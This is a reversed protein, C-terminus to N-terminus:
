SIDPVACPTNSTVRGTVTGTGLLRKGIAKDFAQKFSEEAAQQFVPIETGSMKAEIAADLHAMVRTELTSFDISPNDGQPPLRKGARTVGKIIRKAMALGLGGNSNTLYIGAAPPSCPRLGYRFPNAKLWYM